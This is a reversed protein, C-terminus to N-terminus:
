VGVARREIVEIPAHPRELLPSTRTGSVGSSGVRPVLRPNRLKYRV